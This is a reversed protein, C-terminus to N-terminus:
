TKVSRFTLILSRRLSNSETTVGDAKYPKLVAGRVLASKSCNATVCRFINRFITPHARMGSSGQVSVYWRMRSLTSAASECCGTSSQVCVSHPLFDFSCSSSCVPKFVYKDCCITKQDGSTATSGFSDLAGVLRLPLGHLVHCERKFSRSM